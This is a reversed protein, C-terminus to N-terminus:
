LGMDEMVSDLLAKQESRFQPDKMKEKYEKQYAKTEEISNLCNMKSVFLNYAADEYSTEQESNIYMFSFFYDRIGISHLGFASMKKIINIRASSDRDNRIAEETDECFKDLVTYSMDVKYASNDSDGSIYVVKGGVNYFHYNDARVQVTDEGSYNKGRAIVYEDRFNMLFGTPKDKLLAYHKLKSGSTDAFSIDFGGFRIFLFNITFNLMLLLIGVILICRRSLWLGGCLKPAKMQWMSHVPLVSFRSFLRKHRM